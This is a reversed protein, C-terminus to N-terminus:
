VATLTNDVFLEAGNIFSSDDSALFLAVTAVEEPECMRGQLSSIAAPSTAVGYRRLQSMEARAHETSVFSPCILNCRVGSDRYEVAIARCLQHMAAKSACYVATLTSAAKASTSSTNIISGRGRELMGPLVAQTMLFVSRANEDLMMDWEEITFELFPKVLVSGANNFLIDIRGFASLTESVARQVDAQRAVDAEVFLARRGAKELKAVCERGAHANRDVICVDAGHEVFLAATARGIGNAGGTILATQGRLRMDTM